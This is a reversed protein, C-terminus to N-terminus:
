QNGESPGPETGEGAAEEEPGFTPLKAEAQYLENLEQLDPDVVSVVAKERLRTVLQDVPEGQSRKYDRTVDEKVKELTAKEAAKREEVKIIYWQQDAAIPASIEGVELNQSPGQLERPYLMSVPTEPRKGGQARTAPSVSYQKAMAGFDVDPKKLEKLVKEADAKSSVVIERITVRLPKDYRQHYQSFFDKLGEETVKVDRTALLELKAGFLLEDRLEKLTMRQSSLFEQFAEPTPFRGELEAIREEIEQAPVSLGLKEFEQNVLARDIMAQLLRKGQTKKLKSIFESENIREGNVVAIPKEGCGGVAVALIVWVLLGVYKVKTL